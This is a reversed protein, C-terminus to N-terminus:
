GEEGVVGGPDVHVGVDDAGLIDGEGIDGEPEEESFRVM